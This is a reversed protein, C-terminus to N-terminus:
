GSVGTGADKNGRLARGRRRPLTPTPPLILFARFDNVNTLTPGTIVQNGIRAFFSHSDNNELMLAADLGAKEARVLTSPDIMAGAVEAAGDVGDTDCALGFINPAGALALAASLMFEANPGGQGNGTRTVTCEGGSLLLVPAQGPKLTPRIALARKAQAQGLEKAEGELADGLLLVKIGKAQATRQAADLSQSPAAIIRNEVRNLEKAEPPLVGSKGTLVRRVSAPIEINFKKLIALADAPTSTDGVTPGSAIHAPDDGAVDSIMLALMKAPFAAAALQGGKVQSLHKRVINMQDIPAGSALLRANIAQKQALTIEEAPACLLASGGGSILALVFDDSKLSALLKLMRKTAAVGALDPVPHGAEVIEIGRTPRGYGYRTIVLGECPGWVSELAEAMRASAKGAGVVVVRGGPKPPLAQPVRAMPDATQVAVQFLQRLLSPPSLYNM